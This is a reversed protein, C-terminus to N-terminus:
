SGRLNAEGKRERWLERLGKLSNPLREEKKDLQVEPVALQRLRPRGGLKGLEKMYGPPHRLVTQLGGLQGYDRFNHYPRRCMLCYPQGDDDEIILSSGCNSCKPKVRTTVVRVM